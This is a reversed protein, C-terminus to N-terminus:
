TRPQNQRRGATLAATPLKFVLRAGAKGNSAGDITPDGVDVLPRIGYRGHVGAWWTETNKASHAGLPFEGYDLLFKVLKLESARKLIMTGNLVIYSVGHKTMADGQEGIITGGVQLVCLLM